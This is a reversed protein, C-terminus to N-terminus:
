VGVCLSRHTSRIAAARQPQYRTFDAPNPPSVKVGEESPCGITKACVVAKFRYEGIVIKGVVKPMGMRVRGM